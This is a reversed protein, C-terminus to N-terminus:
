QYALMWNAVASFSGPTIVASAGDGQLYATFRLENDGDALVQANSPAGLKILSSAGDTIAISAGKATGTIGLLDQDAASASGTFTTTVNKLTSSDCQQLKISFPVPVSTGLNGNAKLSVNSIQGLPIIQNSSDPAISCPADIISGTFTVTGHGADTAASVASAALTVGLGLAVVFKNLKM